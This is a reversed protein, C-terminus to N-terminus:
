KHAGIRKGRRHHGGQMKEWNGITTCPDNETYLGGQWAATTENLAEIYTDYSTADIAGSDRLWAARTRCAAPNKGLVMCLRAAAGPGHVYNIAVTKCYINFKM